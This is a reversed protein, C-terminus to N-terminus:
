KDGQDRLLIARVSLGLPTLRYQFGGHPRNWREFVPHTKDPRSALGLFRWERDLRFVAGRDQESLGKAIAEADM